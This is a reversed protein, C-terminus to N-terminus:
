VYAFMGEFSVQNKIIKKIQFFSSHLAPIEFRQWWHLKWARQFPILALRRYSKKSYHLLLVHVQASWSSNEWGLLGKISCEELSNVSIKVGTRIYPLLFFCPVLFLYVKAQLYNHWAAKNKFLLYSSDHHAKHSCLHNIAGKPCHFYALILVDHWLNCVGIIYWGFLFLNNTFYLSILHLSFRWLFFFCLIFLPM